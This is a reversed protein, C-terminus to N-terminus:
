VMVRSYQHRELVRKIGNVICVPKSDDSFFWVTKESGAEYVFVKDGQKLPPFTPIQPAIPISDGAILADSVRRATIEARYDDLRIPECM